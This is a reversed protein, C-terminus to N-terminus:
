QLPKKKGKKGRPEERIRVVFDLNVVEEAKDTRIMLANGSVAELLGWIQTGSFMYIMCEKGIFQKALELMENKDGKKRRIKAALYAENKEKTIAIVFLVVLIMYIAPNM